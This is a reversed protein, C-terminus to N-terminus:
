RIRELQSGRLQLSNGFIEALRATVSLSFDDLGAHEHSEVRLQARADLREDHVESDAGFDGKTFGRVLGCGLERPKRIRRESQAGVIHPAHAAPSCSADGTCGAGYDFAH